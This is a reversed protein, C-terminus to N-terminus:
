RRFLAALDPDYVEYFRSHRRAWEAATPSLWHTMRILTDHRDPLNFKLIPEHHAIRNRLLRVKAFPANLKSRKLGKQAHHKFAKHLAKRWLDEYRRGLCTTWFGFSLSAVIRGPEIPKKDKVLQIKADSIQRLQFVNKVIGHQDFWDDGFESSLVAHFRNRLAVEFMQLPSYLAESVATNHAYLSYATERDSGAADLYRQLRELSLIDDLPRTRDCEYLFTLQDTM